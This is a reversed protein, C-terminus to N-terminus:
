VVEGGYEIRPVITWDFEKVDEISVVNEYAKRAVGLVEQVNIGRQNKEFLELKPICKKFLGRAGNINLNTIHFYGVALQILGQILKADPLRYDSWADELYEHADYFEGKNFSSIGSRILDEPSKM